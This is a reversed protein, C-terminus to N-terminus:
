PLRTEVCTIRPPTLLIRKTELSRPIDMNSYRSGSSWLPMLTKIMMQRIFQFLTRMSSDTLCSHHIKMQNKTKNKANIKCSFRLTSAFNYVCM